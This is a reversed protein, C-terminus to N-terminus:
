CRRWAPKSCIGAVFQNRPSRRGSGSGHAFVVVGGPCPPVSLSGVLRRGSVPDQGPARAAHHKDLTDHHASRHHQRDLRFPGSGRAFGNGDAGPLPRPDCRWRPSSCWCPWCRRWHWCASLSPECRIRCRPTRRQWPCGPAGARGRESRGTSAPGTAETTRSLARHLAMRLANVVALVDIIEQVVAGAVPPLYGVAAALMGILSLAMGGVASQLAITRLRRSIHLLEDVKELSSDLVVVGAAEGTIYSEDMVGRGELVTGDVPCIEHPFVILLDGVAVAELAMDAVEGAGKRHALAPMRRALAELVSSASRVAYAELAEGGSLMLVVLTGALYEGLLVSTVISIGALLDSGFERHLLKLLLELVLPIGGLVLAAILPWDSFPLGCGLTPQRRGM